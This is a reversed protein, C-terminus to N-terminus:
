YNEEEEWCDDEDFDDNSDDDWDSDPDNADSEDDSLGPMAACFSDACPNYCNCEKINEMKRDAGAKCWPCNEQVIVDSSKTEQSMERVM